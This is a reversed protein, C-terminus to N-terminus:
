YRHVVRGKTLDYPTMEVKVEDGPLLRIRNLRMRGALYALILQGGELRVRFQAGPLCEEVVGYFELFTKSMAQAETNHSSSKTHKGMIPKTYTLNNLHALGFRLEASVKLRSYYVM